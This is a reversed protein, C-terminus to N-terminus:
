SEEIQFISIDCRVNCILLKVHCVFLIIMFHVLPGHFLPGLLLHVLIRPIAYWVTATLADAIRPFSLFAVFLENM